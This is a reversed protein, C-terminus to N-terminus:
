AGTGLAQADGLVLTGGGLATGGTYSNAADLVLTGTDLKEIGGVGSVAVDITGTVGPDVRIITTAANASLAGAGGDGLVYGDTIFQMGTIGQTGQVGVTGASGGFVAFNNQWPSNTLGDILTWNTGGATWAATGGDVSGNAVTQAGDWFQVNSGPSLVVVNVQ